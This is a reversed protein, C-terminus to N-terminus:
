DLGGVFGRGGFRLRLGPSFAPFLQGGFWGGFIGLGLACGVTIITQSMPLANAGLSGFILVASVALGVVFGQKLSNITGSGALASGILIALARIEWTILEAQIYSDTTLKGESVDVINDLIKKAFLTGCIAFGAGFAVRLWAVPGSFTAPHNQVPGVIRKEFCIAAKPEDPPALPKWITSGIHGAISGFVTHMLPMGFLAALNATLSPDDQFVFSLIGNLLGVVGGLVFGWKQGAGSLTAGVVLGLLQLAQLLVLSYLATMAQSQLNEGFAMLGALCLKRLGFYLGQALILGLLMRGWPTQVLNANKAATDLDVKPGKYVLRVNCNPCQLRQDFTGHCQPCLM